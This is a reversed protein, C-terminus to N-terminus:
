SVVKACRFGLHDMKNEPLVWGRYACRLYKQFAGHFSGRM